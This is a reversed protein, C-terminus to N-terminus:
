EDKSDSRVIRRFGIRSLILCRSLDIHDLLSLQFSDLIINLIHLNSRDLSSTGVGLTPRKENTERSAEPSIVSEM